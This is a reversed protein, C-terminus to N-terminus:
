EKAQIVLQTQSEQVVISANQKLFRVLADPKDADFVASIREKGLSEDNIVLRRPNYRNFEAVVSALTENEFILRRETWAVTRETNVKAQTRIPAAPLVEAVDGAGLEVTSDDTTGVAGRNNAPSLSHEVAVRGELVTVLVEGNRERVNFQTGLARVTAHESAVVFPRSPDKAVTFLAEGNMLNISRLKDTLQVTLESQTNMDVISGDELVLRRQEGLGTTYLDIQPLTSYWVAATVVALVVSAATAWLVPRRTRRVRDAEGAAAVAPPKVATTGSNPFSVDPGSLEVVTDDDKALLAEVDIRRAADIGELTAFVAEAKLYERVHVPSERLWAVFAQSEDLSATGEHMALLWENAAEIIAQTARQETPKSM